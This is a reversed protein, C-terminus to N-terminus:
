AASYKENWATKFAAKQEKDFDDVSLIVDVVKDFLGWYKKDVKDIIKMADNFKPKEYFLQSIRSLIGDPLTNYSLGLIVLEMTKREDKSITGDINAAVIGIAFAGMVFSELQEYQELVECVREFQKNIKKLKIDYEAKAEQRGEEKASDYKKIEKDSLNEFYKVAAWGVAETVAAATSANITNGIIPMWGFLVQSVGRGITSTAVTGLIAAAASKSLKIDLVTGLSIIMGIQIPTILVNDSLPIQSLGAGISAAAASAGHIIGHCKVKKEDTLIM